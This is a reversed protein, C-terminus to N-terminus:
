DRDHLLLLMLRRLLVVLILLLYTRWIKTLSDNQVGARLFLLILSLRDVLKDINFMSLLLPRCYWRALLWGLNRWSLGVGAQARFAREQHLSIAALATERERHSGRLLREEDLWDVQSGQNSLQQVRPLGGDDVGIGLSTIFCLFCRWGIFLDLGLKHWVQSVQVFRLEQGFHKGRQLDREREDLVQLFPDLHLILAVHTLDFLSPLSDEALNLHWWAGDTALSVLLLYALHAVLKTLRELAEGSHERILAKFEGHVLLCDHGFAAVRLEHELRGDVVQHGEFRLIDFKSLGDLTLLKLLHVTCWVLSLRLLRDRCLPLKLLTKAGFWWKFLLATHFSNLLITGLAELHLYSLDLAFLLHFVALWFHLLRGQNDLFDGFFYLYLILPNFLKGRLQKLNQDNNVATFRVLCLILVQFLQWIYTDYFTRLQYIEIRKSRTDFLQM